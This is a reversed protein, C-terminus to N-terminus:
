DFDVLFLCVGVVPNEVADVEISPSATLDRSTRISWAPRTIRDKVQLLGLGLRRVEHWSLSVSGSVDERAGSSGCSAHLTCADFQLKDDVVPAM